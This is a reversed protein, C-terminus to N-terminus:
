PKVVNILKCQARSKEFKNREDCEKCSKISEKKKTKHCYFTISAQLTATEM